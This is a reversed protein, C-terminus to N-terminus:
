RYFGTQINGMENEETMKILISASQRSSRCRSPCRTSVVTRRRRGHPVRVPLRQFFSSGYCNPPGFLDSSSREEGFM